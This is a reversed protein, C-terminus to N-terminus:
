GSLGLEPIQFKHRREVRQRVLQLQSPIFQVRLLARSGSIPLLGTRPLRKVPYALFLELYEADRQEVREKVSLKQQPVKDMSADRLFRSQPNIGCSAAIDLTINEIQTIAHTLLGCKVTMM